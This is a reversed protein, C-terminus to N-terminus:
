GHKRLQAASLRLTRYPVLWDSHAKHAGATQIAVFCDCYSPLNRLTDPVRHLAEHLQGKSLLPGFKSCM